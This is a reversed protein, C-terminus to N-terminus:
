GPTTTEGRPLANNVVQLRQQLAAVDQHVAALASDCYGAWARNQSVARLKGSVFGSFENHATIADQLMTRSARLQKLKARGDLNNAPLDDGADGVKGRAKNVKALAATMGTDKNPVLKARVAQKKVESADAQDWTFAPLTVAPAQQGQMRQTFERLIDLAELCSGLRAAKLVNGINNESITRRNDNLEMARLQTALGQAETKSEQIVCATLARLLALADAEAGKADGGTLKGDAQDAQTTFGASANGDRVLAAVRRCEAILDQASTRTAANDDVTSATNSAQPAANGNMAEMMATNIITLAPWGQQPTIRAVTNQGMAILDAWAQVTSVRDRIRRDPAAGTAQLAADYATSGGAADFAQSFVGIRKKDIDSFDAWENDAIAFAAKIHPLADNGPLPTDDNAEIADHVPFAVPNPNVQKSKFLKLAADPDKMLLKAASLDGTSQLEGWGNDTLTQLIKTQLDTPAMFFEKFAAKKPLMDAIVDDAVDNFDNDTADFLREGHVSIALQVEAPSLSGAARKLFMMCRKSMDINEDPVKDGAGFGPNLTDVADRQRKLGDAMADPDLLQLQAVTEPDFPEYAAPTSLMANQVGAGNVASQAVGAFYNKGAAFDSRKPMSAANDIPVLRPNDPDSNDLLINGSHRDMNMTMIDLIAIKQAEKPKIRDTFDGPQDELADSVGAHMQMSGVVPPGKPDRGTLAHGGIATVTTEPVQLDIGTMSAFMKANASALLEKVTGAGPADTLYDPVREGDSPKFIAERKDAVMTVTQRGREDFGDQPTSSKLWFSDSLGGQQDAKLTRAQQFGSEFYMASQLAGARMAKTEDWPQNPQPAGIDDMEMALAFHRASILGEECLQKKRLNSKDKKQRDSYDRDFHDLYARAANIMLECKQKVDRTTQQDAPQKPDMGDRANEVERMADIYAKFQRGADLKEKEIRDAGGPRIYTRKVDSLIPAVEDFLAKQRDFQEQKRKAGELRGNTTIVGQAASKKVSLAAMAAQADNGQMLGTLQGTATDYAQKPQTLLNPLPNARLIRDAADFLAQEKGAAMRVAALPDQIPRQPIPPLPPM